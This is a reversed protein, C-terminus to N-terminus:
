NFQGLDADCVIPVTRNQNNKVLVKGDQSWASSIKHAIVLASAKKLLASRVPTLHDTLVISKGKLQRRNAMLAVRTAKRTFRIVVPPPKQASSVASGSQLQNASPLRHAVSIQEGSFHVMPILRNLTDPIITYLDESQGPQPLPLGHLLVSDSRRRRVARWSTNTWARGHWGPLV